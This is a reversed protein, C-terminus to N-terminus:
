YQILFWINQFFPECTTDDYIFAEEREEDSTSANGCKDMRQWELAINLLSDWRETETMTVRRLDDRPTEKRCTPCKIV